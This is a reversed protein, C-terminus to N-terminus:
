RVIVIYGSFVPIAPDDVCETRMPLFGLSRGVTLQSFLEFEFEHKTINLIM